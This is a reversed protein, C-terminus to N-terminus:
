STRERYKEERLALRGTYWDPVQSTWVCDVITAFIVQGHNDRYCVTHGSRDLATLERQRDGASAGADDFLQFDFSPTRVYRRSRMTTPLGGSLPYYPTQDISRDHDRENTYRLTTRLTEPDRVSHLVVGGLDVQGYVRVSASFLTDVGERVSQTVDYAFEVGSPPTYDVFVTATPSTTEFVTEALQVQGDNIFRTVTYSQWRGASETTQDWTIRIASEWIDTGVKVPVARINTLTAPPTYALTFTVPSSEGTLLSTDTVQVTMTYTQGNRLGPNSITTSTGSGLVYTDHVLAGNADNIVIYASSQTGTVSWSVYVSSSTVTGGNSPSSVTVVPGSAYAFTAEASTVATGSTTKEGSYLTGDYSYADWRYTGYSALDVSVTQYEWRGFSSNYTMSRTQLVTGGSNKIRASVTLGTAPTDDVDTAKCILVPRVTVPPTTSYPSLSTPVSPAANTRFSRTPSWDSWATGDYGRMSYRMDQGWPLTSLGTNAWAFTFLTGPAASSSVPSISASSGTQLVISGDGSLIRVQVFTMTKSSTHTWRGKFDPTNVEIKGSPDNDLTIAGLSAPTFDTWSSWVGWAGFHDSMQVRWTYATGRVLTSGGYAISVKAATREGTTATVTTSWMVVNDSKRRVEVRYQNLYDGRNTNPDSFNAEFTPTTTTISGTPTLGTTPQSPPQNDDCAAWITVHGNYSSVYSGFPNPPPQSLGSRDYFNLNDGSIGGAAAMGHALSGSTGLAALHYRTNAALPISTSAPGTSTSIAAVHSAGGTQDNMLTSVTVADTYGLRSTPNMSGDTAYVALRTTVNNPSGDPGATHKGAWIGLDYAWMNKTTRDFTVGRMQGPALYGWDNHTQSSHRGYNTTM